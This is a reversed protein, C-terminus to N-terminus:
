SQRRLGEYHKWADRLSINGTSNGERHSERTCTQQHSVGPFASDVLSQLGIDEGSMVDRRACLM